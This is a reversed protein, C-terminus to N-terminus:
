SILNKFKVSKKKLNNYNDAEILKGDDVHLIIDFNILTEIRHAISILTVTGGLKNICKQFERQSAADLHSSAEDLILISPEQYLARAIAIRQLQGGSLKVGRDGINTQDGYELKEVFDLSNSLELCKHVKTNDIEDPRIGIAINERISKDFFYPNQPVYGINKRWDQPSFDNLDKGDLEIKGEQPM